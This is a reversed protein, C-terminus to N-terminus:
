GTKEIIEELYLEQVPYTFGPIHAMKCNDQSSVCFIVMMLVYSMVVLWLFWVFRQGFPVTFLLFTLSAHCDNIMGACHSMVLRTRM